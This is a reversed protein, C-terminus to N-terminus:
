RVAALMTAPAKLGAQRIQEAQEPTPFVNREGGGLLGLRRAEQLEAVVQARTKMSRFSEHEITAEGERLQGSAFAEIAAQQVEARTLQSMSPRSTDPTAEQSFASGAVAASLAAIAIFRTNMILTRELLTSNTDICNVIYDTQKRVFMQRPRPEQKVAHVFFKTTIHPENLAGLLDVM